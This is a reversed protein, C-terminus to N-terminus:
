STRRKAHYRRMGERRCARCTRTGDPQRYTNEPTFEHGNVCCTQAARRANVTNGRLLNEQRTVPELHAPNVCHRVRCLHDLDLGDPVPGVLLEYLYRHASWRRQNPRTGRALRGYGTNSLAGTWLWCGDAAQIVKQMVRGIEADLWTERDTTTTM